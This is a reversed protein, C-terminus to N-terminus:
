GAGNSACKCYKSKSIIQSEKQTTWHNFQQGNNDNIGLDVTWVWKEGEM